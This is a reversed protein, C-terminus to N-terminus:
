SMATVVTISPVNHSNSVEDESDVDADWNIMLRVLDNKGASAAIHLANILDQLVCFVDIYNYIDLSDGNYGHLQEVGQPHDHVHLCQVM